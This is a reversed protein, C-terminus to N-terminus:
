YDGEYAIRSPLGMAILCGELKIRHRKVSELHPSDEIIEEGTEEDYRRKHYWNTLKMCDRNRNLYMWAEAATKVLREDYDLTGQGRGVYGLLTDIRNRYHEMDLKDRQRSKEELEQFFTKARMELTQKKSM